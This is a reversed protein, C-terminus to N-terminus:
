ATCVPDNAVVTAPADTATLYLGNQEYCAFWVWRHNDEGDPAVFIKTWVLDDVTRFEGTQERGPQPKVDDSQGCGAVVLVILILALFVALGVRGRVM